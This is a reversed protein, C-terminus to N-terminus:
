KTKETKLASRWKVWQRLTGKLVDEGESGNSLMIIGSSTKFDLLLASEWGTNSGTHGHLDIGGFSYHLYGLGYFGKTIPLPERMKDIVKRSLVESGHFNAKVFTLLDELNTHLGAAAQATFRELYIEEGKEDYPLSSKKLIGKSLVFSTNRMKLPRFVERKMYTSFPMGSVEEIMLQLITYGGGSYKLKTQPELIIEVKENARVPGNVGNLSEELSPLEMEPPFGPYGHVSIGGTHSLLSAVTVKKSDFKGAPLKWRSLYNEVPADLVIKGQQVLKMVGWATFLKSISGINFGTEPTVRERISVNALGIGRKYIIKGKHMVAIAMGPVNKEALRKPLERDLSEAFESVSDTNQAIGSVSLILCFCLIYNKM